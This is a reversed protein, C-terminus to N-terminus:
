MKLEHGGDFFYLYKAKLEVGMIEEVAKEYLKLQTDYREKLTPLAKLFDGQYRETINDTKYDILILGDEEEFLCDMIGQVLIVEEEDTSHPYIEQARVGLSFPVERQVRKARLLRQGIPTAFFAVIKEIEVVEVQELSLIEKQNLRELLATISQETPEMSLSIHQMVTHMVTGREAPSLAKEQLFKPRQMIPRQIQNLLDGGSAEDSMQFMKKIESVSQKSKTTVAEKYPYLWNLRHEIEEKTSSEFEVPQGKQVIEKWEQEGEDLLSSGDSFDGKPFFTVKWCSPHNIINPSVKSQELQGEHMFECTRHRVLSPGLWDIYSIANAREFDSLLWDTQQLATKWKLISKELDKMTAVLYLKEKARTLAVYLVRMEEAITEMRKKRKLALQAISPYSIRKEANVYKTGFGYEKDLLYPRNLDMLNFQKSLGAIFVVPFELGKSSHITMLRVVDEQESLARATGLDDGRERMKEVFRLFRFLGRFSTEEYSRARDYLARLNAQRQKGGPMGGVFDYFKTDRYLQWILDSLAGQRASTRWKTLCEFFLQLKGFASEEKSAKNLFQQAAEYFSGSRSYIRIAALEEEDMGVIPSRLVSALPIDQYPNDIVKLLSVMMSVEVADFYGTSLNAYIPINEAKFEEMIEPAWPMSRLLIVIDRYQIPRYNKKKSDYIVSQSDILEKVKRAMYRAELQSKELELKNFEVGENVNEENKEDLDILALEVPYEEEKPYDAGIKLEAEEDYHIEGVEVGMIQKFLFNTGSLVEKRSRFNQSLDIKLGTRAENSSFRNYKSLFLNPEALRFRYISQKVDGVMFLNGQEEGDKTILSIITEQVMNTDQYEDVLVEKFQRRYSIAADSPAGENLLIELTFHELDSFDVLGRELKVNQFRLSFEKVLNALSLIIPKMERLDKLLSEPQRSFFEEAIKEILKKGQARLAKAEDIKKTSYEEGRCPKLRSFKLEQFRVYLEEWSTNLSQSLGEVIDMDQQFNEGYPAPGDSERTLEMGREYAARAGELSLRIERKIVNFFPLQQVQDVHENVDYLTVIDDLWKEPTPHSRSFLYLERVMEQLTIDSRDNTFTDVLTYFAGNEEKGYEDEFLEDMVEDRLLEGEIDDAIRFSPDIDILYYYKRIVELCFSHLTSISAKNLLHLQKRIRDSSPNQEIERELAEGIRHRMEAAAANTFTVVLLEDVNMRDEESLLRQIIREVLVATKGSGAAAAVLVDQNKSWIAKWQDETWIVNDPKTPVAAKSM